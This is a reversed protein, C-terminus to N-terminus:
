SKRHMLNFSRIAKASESCHLALILRKGEVGGSMVIYAMVIKGGCWRVSRAIVIYATVICKGGRWRVSRAMVIYAMGIYAM